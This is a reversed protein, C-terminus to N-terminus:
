KKGKAAKKPAKKAAKKRKPTEDDGEDDGELGKKFARVGKGVDGLVHPLRGAGFVILVIVLVILLERMMGM